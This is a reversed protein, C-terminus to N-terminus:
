FQFPSSTSSINLSDLFNFHSFNYKSVPPTIFSQLDAQYAQPSLNINGYSPLLRVEELIMETADLIDDFKVHPYAEYQEIFEKENAHIFVKKSEFMPSTLNIRESKSQANKGGRKITVFPVYEGNAIIVERLANQYNVEEVLFKNPKWIDNIFVVTKLQEPISIRKNYVLRILVNKARTISAVVICTPDNKQETKSAPDVAAITQVIPDGRFYYTADSKNFQIEDETFYQLSEVKFSCSEIPRPNQQYLSEFKSAGMTGKIALLEELPYREPWLAEGIKRGLPDNDSDCIAKLILTDWHEGEKEADRLLCGALDDEAWRTTILIIAGGEAMPVSRSRMVTKYWDYIAAKTTPSNAEKWDKIPDDIIALHFGKGITGSGIGVAYFSGSHGDLKWHDLSKKRPDLQVGFIQQGYNEIIDRAPMSFDSKSLDAGYSALIIDHEPNNGFYWATFFRSITQSKSHRCPMCVILRKCKGDVIEKLKKCLLLTHASHAYPRPSNKLILELFLAYNEKALRFKEMETTQHLLHLLQANSLHDLKGM